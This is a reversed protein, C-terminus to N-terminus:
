TTPADKTCMIFDLYAPRWNGDATLGHNHASGGGIAQSTRNGAAGPYNDVLGAVVPPETGGAPNNYGVGHSHVPMEAITIAHGNVTVGSIIWNGGLNGGVGTNDVVRIVRDNVSVDQTWFTPASAQPFVQLTGAPFAHDAIQNKNLEAATGLGMSVRATAPDEGVFNIGDGVIFTSDAPVIASVDDLQQAYAQIDIGVRTGLLENIQAPTAAIVNGASLRALITALGMSLAAYAAAGSSVIVQNGANFTSDPIAANAISLANDATTQAADASAQVTADKQDVEARNPLVNGGPTTGDHVRANNNDTDVTIEREFGIFADATGQDHGVRQVRKAM